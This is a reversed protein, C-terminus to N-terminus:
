VEIIVHGRIAGAPAGEYGQRPAEERDTLSSRVVGIPNLTYGTEVMDKDKKYLPAAGPKEPAIAPLRIM